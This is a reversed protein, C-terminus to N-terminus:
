CKKVYVICSTLQPCALRADGGFGGSTRPRAAQAARLYGGRQQAMQAARCAAKCGWAAQCRGAAAAAAASLLMPVDFFLQRASFTTTVESGITTASATFGAASRLLSDLTYCRHSPQLHVHATTTRPGHCGLYRTPPASVPRAHAFRAGSCCSFGTGGFALVTLIVGHAGHVAQHAFASRSSRARAAYAPRDRPSPQAPSALSFM